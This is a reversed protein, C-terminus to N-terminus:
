CSRPASVKEERARATSGQALSARRPDAGRVLSYGSHVSDQKQPKAQTGAVRGPGPTEPQGKRNEESHVCVPGGARRGHVQDGGQGM